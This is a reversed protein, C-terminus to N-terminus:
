LSQRTRQMTGRQAASVTYNDSTGSLRQSCMTHLGHALPSTSTGSPSMSLFYRAALYYQSSDLIRAPVITLLVYNHCIRSYATNSLVGIRQVYTEVTGYLGTPLMYCAYFM